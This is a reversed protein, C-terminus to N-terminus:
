RVAARRAAIAAVAAGACTGGCTSVVLGPVQAMIVSPKEVLFCNVSAFIMVADLALM